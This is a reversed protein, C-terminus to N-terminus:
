KPSKPAYTKARRLTAHAAARHPQSVVTLCFLRVKLGPTEPQVQFSDPHGPFPFALTRTLRRQGLLTQDTLCHLKPFGQASWTEGFTRQFWNTITCISVMSSAMFCVPVIGKAAPFITLPVIMSTRGLSTSTSM